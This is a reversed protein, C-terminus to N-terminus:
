LVLSSVVQEVEGVWSVWFDDGCVRRIEGSGIIGSEQEIGAEEGGGAIM